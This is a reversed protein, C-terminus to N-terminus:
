FRKALTTRTSWDSRCNMRQARFAKTERNEESASFCWDVLNKIMRVTATFGEVNTVNGCKGSHAMKLNKALDFAAADLYSFCRPLASVDQIKKPPNQPEREKAVRASSALQCPGRRTWRRRCRRVRRMSLLAPMQRPLEGDEETFSEGETGGVFGCSRVEHPVEKLELENVRCSDRALQKLPLGSSQRSWLQLSLVRTAVLLKPWFLRADLQLSLGQAMLAQWQM